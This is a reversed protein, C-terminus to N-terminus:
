YASLPPKFITTAGTLSAFIREAVNPPELGGAPGMDFYAFTQFKTLLESKGL